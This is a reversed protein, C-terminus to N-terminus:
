TFFTRVSQLERLAFSFDIISRVSSWAFVAITAQGAIIM